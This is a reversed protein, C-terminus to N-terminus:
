RRIMASTKIANDSHAQVLEGVFAVLYGGSGVPLPDGIAGLADCGFM